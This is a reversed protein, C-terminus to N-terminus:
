EGTHATVSDQYEDTVWDRFSDWAQLTAPFQRIREDGSLVTISLAGGDSTCGLIVAEGAATIFQIVTGIDTAPVDRWDFRNNPLQRHVRSHRGTNRERVPDSSPKALRKEM